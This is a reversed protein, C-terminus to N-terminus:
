ALFVWMLEGDDSVWEAAGVGGRLERGREGAREGGGRM